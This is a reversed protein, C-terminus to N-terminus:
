ALVDQADRHRRFWAAAYGCTPVLKLRKERAHSALAAMLRDAAGTGRLPMPAEVHPIVLADRAPFYDAFVVMGKETWEFRHKEPNDKFV